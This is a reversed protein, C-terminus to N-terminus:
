ASVADMPATSRASSASTAAVPASESSSSPPAASPLPSPLPWLAASPGPPSSLPSLEASSCSAASTTTRAAASSPRGAWDPRLQAWSDSRRRLDVGLELVPQHLREGVLLELVGRRERGGEQLQEPDALRRLLFGVGGVELGRELQARDVQITEAGQQRVGGGHYAVHVAPPRRRDVRGAQEIREHVHAESEADRGLDVRGSGPNQLCEHRAIVHGGVGIMGLLQQDRQHREVADLQHQGHQGADGRRALRLREHRRQEHGARDRLVDLEVWPVVSCKAAWASREM